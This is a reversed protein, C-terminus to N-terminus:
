KTDIKQNSALEFITTSDGNNLISGTAFYRDNGNTIIKGAQDLTAVPTSSPSPKHQLSISQSTTTQTTINSSSNSSSNSNSSEEDNGFLNLKNGLYYAGYGVAATMAANKLWEFGTTKVKEWDGEVIYGITKFLGSFAGGIMTVAKKLLDIPMLDAISGFLSKDIWNGASLFFNRDDTETTEATPTAADAVGAFAGIGAAVKGTASAYDNIDSANQFGEVGRVFRDSGTTLKSVSRSGLKTLNVAGNVAGMTDFTQNTTNVAAANRTQQLQIGSQYISEFETATLQLANQTFVPTPTNYVAQKQEPTVADTINVLFINSGNQQIYPNLVQNVDNVSLGVKQGSSRTLVLIYEGNLEQWQSQINGTTMKFGKEQEKFCNYSIKEKEDVYIM